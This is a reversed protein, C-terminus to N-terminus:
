RGQLQALALRLGRREGQADKAYERDGNGYRQERRVLSRPKPQTKTHAQAKSPASNVPLDVKRIAASTLTGGRTLAM